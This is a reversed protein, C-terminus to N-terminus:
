MPKAIPGVTRGSSAYLTIQGSGRPIVVAFPKSSDLPITQVGGDSELEIRAVQQRNMSVLATDYGDPSFSAVSDAISGLSGGAHFHYGFNLGSHNLYISVVHSDATDDYFLLTATTDSAGQVVQYNAPIHQSSRADAEIRSRTVCPPSTILWICILAILVAILLLVARARPRRMFKM